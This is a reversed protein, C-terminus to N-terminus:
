KFILPLFQDWKDIVHLTVPVDIDNYPLNIVKLLGYYDGVAMGTSDFTVTVNLTSNAPVSGILPDESLWPINYAGTLRINDLGFSDGDLGVYQWALRIESM